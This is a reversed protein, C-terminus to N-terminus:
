ELKFYHYNINDDMGLLKFEKDFAVYHTAIGLIGLSNKIRFKHFAIYGLVEKSNILPTYYEYEIKLKEIEPRMENMKRIEIPAYERFNNKIKQLAETYKTIITDNNATIMKAIEGVTVTEIVKLEILEYSKPDGANKNLYDTIGVKMKSENSNCSILIVALYLISIKTKM